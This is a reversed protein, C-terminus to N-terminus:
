QGQLKSDSMRQMGMCVKHIFYSIYNLSKQGKSTKLHWFECM